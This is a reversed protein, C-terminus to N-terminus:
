TVFFAPIRTHWDTNEQYVCAVNLLLCENFHVSVFQAGIPLYNESFGIPVSIAPLGALNVFTTFVDSLYMTLPDSVRENIKFATTATTPCFLIDVERFIDICENILKNRVLLANEYYNINKRTALYTGLLIRRKVEEGFGFSRTLFCNRNYDGEKSGKFGYRFGDYRLLNSSCEISSFVYYASVATDFSPLTVEKIICGLNQLIKISEVLACSVDKSIGAILDDTFIGVKVGIINNNISKIYNQGNRCYSTLDKNDAGVLNSFVYACDEASKTIIGCQDLSSSFAILGYRSISGYTPKFGTVGCFSAPQRVSGGTDSGLTFPVLRAAVSSASGSSSGGPVRNFDWPNRTLGYFSTEGSSGMSFEDMNTKGLIIFNSTKLKNSVTSDYPAIFTSLIRSGCTTKLGNCCFSDKIGFPIGLNANAVNIQKSHDLKYSTNISNVYDVTIFSNLFLDYKKIRELFILTLETYSIKGTKLYSILEKISKRYM